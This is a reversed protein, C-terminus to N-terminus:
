HRNLCPVLGWCKAPYACFFQIAPHSKRKNLSRCSFAKTATVVSLQRTAGQKGWFLASFTVAHQDVIEPVNGGEIAGRKIGSHSAAIPITQTVIISPLSKVQFPAHPALSRYGCAIVADSNLGDISMPLTGLVFHDPRFISLESEHKSQFIYLDTITLRAMKFCQELIHRIGRSLL